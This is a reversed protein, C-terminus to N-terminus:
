GVIADRLIHLGDVFKWEGAGPGRYFGSVLHGEELSLAAPGVLNVYHDVRGKVQVVRHEGTKRHRTLNARARILIQYAHDGLIGEVEDSHAVIRELKSFLRVKEM